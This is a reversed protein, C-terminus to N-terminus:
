VRDFRELHGSALEYVWVRDFPSSSIGSAVVRPIEERDEKHFMAGDAIWALLECRGSAVYAKSFKNTLAAINLRPLFSAGISSFAPGRINDGRYVCLSVTTPPLNVGEEAVSGEFGDPLSLLAHVVAPVHKCLDRSGHLGTMSPFILANSYKTDFGRRLDAPLAEVYELLAGPIQNLVNRRLIEAEPSIDTLEFWVEGMGELTVLIDPAPPSPQRLSDPICPLGSAVCFSTFVDREIRKQEDHISAPRSTAQSTRKRPM